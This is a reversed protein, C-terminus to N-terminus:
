TAGRGPGVFPPRARPRLRVVYPPSPLARAVYYLEFERARARRTASGPDFQDRDIPKNPTELGYRREPQM